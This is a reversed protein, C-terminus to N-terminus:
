IIQKAFENAIIKKGIGETGWFIYSHSMKKLNIAKELIKKNKENGLINEFM